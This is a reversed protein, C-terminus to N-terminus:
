FAAESGKVRALWFCGKALVQYLWDASAAHVSLQLDEFAVGSSVPVVQPAGGEQNRVLFIMDLAGGELFLEGVGSGGLPGKSWSWGFTINATVNAAAAHYFGAEIAVRALAPDVQLTTVNVEEALPGQSLLVCGTGGRSLRQSSAGAERQGWQGRGWWRGRGAGDRVTVDIGGLLPVEVTASIEDITANKVTANLIALGQQVAYDFLPQRAAILM